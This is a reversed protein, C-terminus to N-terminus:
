HMKKTIPTTYTIVWGSCLVAAVYFIGFYKLM